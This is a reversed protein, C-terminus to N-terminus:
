AGSVAAALGPESEAHDAPPAPGARYRVGDPRTWRVRGDPERGITWGQEHVLRHHFACVLALNDLDTRGGREWWTIHHAHTFLRTGCGPFVCGRDRHRLQRVMWDPPERTMRGLHVVNGSGDEVVVQVRASCALRRATESPIVGGGELECGRGDGAIADVSAHVVVTARDPDPDSAIQASCVAVLADARRADVHGPGEEGPMVPIREAMRSLANAVVTGQSAPLEAFLEFRRGEDTFSWRVSRGQEVTRVEDARRRLELDGRERIRGSPVTRAWAVLDRESEATAFRTVEVVKDIGLEGSSLAEAVRPLSELARAAEIWRHAKWNSIGYRMGLFHALDRAGASWWVEHRDAEAICRLMRLQIEGQRAHLRDLEGIVAAQDRSREPM